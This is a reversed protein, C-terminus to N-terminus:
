KWRVMAGLVLTNASGGTSLDAVTAFVENVGSKYILSLKDTNTAYAQTPNNTFGIGRVTALNNDFVPFPLSVTVVGSATGITLADTRMTISIFATGDPYKAYSGARIANYTISGFSGTAPLYQPLYTGYEISDQETDNAILGMAYQRAISVYAGASVSIHGTPCDFVIPVANIGQILGLLQEMGILYDSPTVNAYVDNIGVTTWVFNPSKTAVDAAFRAILDTVKNGGVGANIFTARPLRSQLRDVIGPQAFWSDGFAVHVGKNISRMNSTILYHRVMGVLCLWGGSTPSRVLVTIRTGKRVRYRLKVLRVTNGFVTTTTTGVISSSGDPYTAQISVTVTGAGGGVNGPNVVVETEYTGGQAFEVSRSNVGTNSVSGQVLVSQQGAITSGPNGYYPTTQLTLTIGSGQALWQSGDNNAYVLKRERSIQRLADDAITRYGHLSPHGDSVYFPYLAAGSAIPVPLVRNLTFTNGSIANIIMAYYQGDTAVYCVLQGVAWNTASAVQITNTSSAATVTTSFGAAQEPSTMGVGQLTDFHLNIAIPSVSLTNVSPGASRVAKGTAGTFIVEDGDLSTFPSTVDGTGTGDLGKSSLVQWYATDVPPSAASPSQGTPVAQIAIFSSGNFRAIDDKIYTNAPNYAGIWHFGEGEPIGFDINYGGSVPVVNVTAPMGPNLTTVTGASLTVVPGVPGTVFAPSSWDANANSKKSYIAARGDGNNSVLVTFGEPRSDYAARDSLLSVQVDYDVGQTMESVSKLIISNPGDFVVVGPGVLAAFEDVNGNGWKNLLTEVAQLYGIDFPTRQIEYSAATQGFGAPWDHALTLHTDDVVTLIRIPRGVHTGFLDGARLSAWATGQGVVDRSGAAITATGIDYFSIKIDIAM